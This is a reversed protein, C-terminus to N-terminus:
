RPLGAFHMRKLWLFACYLILFTTAAFFSFAASELRLTKWFVAAYGLSGFWLSDVYYSLWTRGAISVLFALALVLFLRRTRLTRRRPPRSRSHIPRKTSPWDASDYM